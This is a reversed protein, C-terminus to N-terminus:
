APPKFRPLAPSPTLIPQHPDKPALTAPKQGLGRPETPLVAGPHQRQQWERPSTYPSFADGCAARRDGTFNQCKTGPAYPATNNQATAGSFAGVTVALILAVFGASLLKVFSRPAIAM